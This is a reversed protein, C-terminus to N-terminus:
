KLKTSLSNIAVLQKKLIPLYKDAFAKVGPDKAKTGEEFLTISKQQDTMMMEVFRKDFNNGSLTKLGNIDKLIAEDGIQGSSISKQMKGNNGAEGMNQNRSTDKLNEPTADVRGDPRLGGEPKSMPLTIKMKTALTRLENNAMSHNNVIMKAFSKVGANKSQNVALGGTQLAKMSYLMAEKVFKESSTSDQNITIFNSNASIKQLNTLCLVSTLAVFMLIVKNKM